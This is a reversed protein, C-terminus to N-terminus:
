LSIRLPLFLSQIPKEYINVFHTYWMLTNNILEFLQTKLQNSATWTNWKKNWNRSELWFNSITISGGTNSEKIFRNNFYTTGLHYPKNFGVKHTRLAIPVIFENSIVKPLTTRWARSDLSSSQEMILAM